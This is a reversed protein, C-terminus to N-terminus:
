YQHLQDSFWVRWRGLGHEPVRGLPGWGVSLVQVLKIAPDMRRIIAWRAATCTLLVLTQGVSNSNSSWCVSSLCAPIDMAVCSVKEHHSITSSPACSFFFQLISLSCLSETPLTWSERCQWIGPTFWFDLFELNYNWIAVQSKGSPSSYTPLFRGALALSM